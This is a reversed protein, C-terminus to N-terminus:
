AKTKWIAKSNTLSM